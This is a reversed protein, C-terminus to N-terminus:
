FGWYISRLTNRTQQPKKEWSEKPLQWPIFTPNQRGSWCLRAPAGRHLPARGLEHPCATVFSSLIDKEGNGHVKYGTQLSSKGRAISIESFVFFLSKRQQPAIYKTCIRADM